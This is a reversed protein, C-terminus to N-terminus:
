ILSFSVSIFLPSSNTKKLKTYKRPKHIQYVIEYNQENNKETLASSSLLQLTLKCFIFLCVDTMKQLDM